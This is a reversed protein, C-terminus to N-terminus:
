PLHPCTLILDYKFNEESFTHSSITPNNNEEDTLNRDPAKIIQTYNTKGQFVIHKANYKKVVDDENDMNYELEQKLM